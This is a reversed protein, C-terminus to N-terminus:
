LALVAQDIEEQRFSLYRVTVTINSHGLAQQTRYLDHGLKDYVKGAFTKRMSHTALKGQLENAEFAAKLIQWAQVRSIARGHVRSLFLPTQESVVTLRHLQRLWNELAERALPHLAVTRGERKGKMAKRQVSVREVCQGYQWVDGVKLSLLESIRFGTKLGMVFLAKDRAAYPGSFSKSVLSVEEETLPRCGKM